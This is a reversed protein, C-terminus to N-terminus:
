LSYNVGFRLYSNMPLSNFILGEIGGIGFEFGLNSNVQSVLSERWNYQGFGGVDLGSILIYNGKAGLFRAYSARFRQVFADINRNEIAVEILDKNTFQYHLKVKFTYPIAALLMTSEEMLYEEQLDYELPNEASPQIVIGQYDITSDVSYLIAENFRMMGFDCLEVSVAANGSLTTQFKLDIAAGFGAQNFMNNNGISFYDAKFDGQMSEGLSDTFLSGKEIKGTTYRNGQLLNVGVEFTRRNSNKVSVWAQDFGIRNYTMQNLDSFALDKEEGLFSKNGYLILQALDPSLLSGGVDRKGISITSYTRTGNEKQKHNFVYKLDYRLDYGLRKTSENEIRSKNEDNAEANPGTFLMNRNLVNSGLMFESEAAIYNFAIGNSFPHNYYSHIKNVLHISDQAYSNSSAFVFFLFLLRYLKNM